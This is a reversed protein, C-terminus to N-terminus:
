APPAASLRDKSSDQGPPLQALKRFPGAGAQAGQHLLTPQTTKPSRSTRIERSAMQGPGLAQAGKFPDEIFLDRLGRRENSAATPQVRAISGAIGAPGAPADLSTPWTAVVVTWFRLETAHGVDVVQTATPLSGFSLPFPTTMLAVVPLKEAQDPSRAFM